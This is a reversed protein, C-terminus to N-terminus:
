NKGLADVKSELRELIRKVEPNDQNEKIEEIDHKMDLLHQEMREHYVKSDRIVSTNAEIVKTVKEIMKPMQVLYLATIVVMAGFNVIPQYLDMYNRREIVDVEKFDRKRGCVDIQRYDGGKIETGNFENHKSCLHEYIGITSNSKYIAM